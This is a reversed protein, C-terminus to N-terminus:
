LLFFLIVEIIIHATYCFDILMEMAKEDVDNIRIEEKRSEVMEGTFM